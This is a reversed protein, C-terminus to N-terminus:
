LALASSPPAEPISARAAEYGRRRHEEIATASFDHGGGVTENTIEVIDIPKREKVAQYGPHHKLAELEPHEAMMRDLEEVFQIIKTTRKARQLDKDTRNSFALTLMRTIVEPINRPLPVKSPFLNVVYMRRDSDESKQLAHIVKSLPTNDFLGGDWYPAEGKGPAPVPAHTIPFAPPLSCSAVVHAPRIEMHRSDFSDLRGSDLNTATLILRPSRQGTTRESSSEPRLRRFDVHKGLTALLPATDYLNTWWWANQYDLRPTYMGSNGFLAVDENLGDFPPPLTLTTLDAWLARLEVRPDDHKSGALVAANLAGISVGSVVDPRVGNDLLCEIVGLEFAGLAGGGQLVLGMM